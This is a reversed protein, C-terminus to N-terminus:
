PLNVVTIGAGGLRVDEDAFSQIGPTTSLYQRIAQRLAGTGTGHLIRVRHSSFRIADDIFYTVAQLAEDARMGRVDIEQKFDLRRQRAQDTAQSTILFPSDAGTQPKQLTPTLRSVKVRTKLMGFSVVAEKGDIDLVKGPVNQGQLKVYDGVKIEATPKPSQAQQKKPKPAKHLLTHEHTPGDITQKLQSQLQTRLEKTQEKDAQARRIDHITREIARNTGEVIRRAEEKADALIERRHQRLAEADAEYGALASEIKKEKQRIQMRKNEWYRRDRAIDLLYKDMNVYDSGAIEQAQAIVAEPLGIKRAIELAFSSGATGVVLKFMPEMRQRDYLMSGNVLGPTQEAMQKLNQYHTTIVGWMEKQAFCALIAQAIAGGILPETGTGFEDILCLARNNGRQMFRKMNLLHSSYTSLDNEISQNDGLDVLIEDFLGMHSNPHLPPLLGCQTMYQVLAVTKLTVSKGGANPGSVILLRREPTLHLDLPVIEAGRRRMQLLLLPHCAHYWELEPHPSLHPLKADIETAYLAKAHIFDLEAAIATSDLIDPIYPRLSSTLDTLIRATERREEIQLERLRNNTQVVEAPEIFITKGSASEDHVIGQVKRKHMPPVPLVMRGDRLSPQADPDLVGDAVARAMVRRMASQIAASAASLQRRIDALTSSANDLVNGYRDIVRRILTLLEPFQGIPEALRSLGPWVNTESPAFFRSIQGLADITDMVQLLAEATLFTGPIKVEQLLPTIDAVRSLPLDSSRPSTCIAAMEATQGLAASLLGFDTSFTLREQTLAAAPATLCLDAVRQRVQTFGIKHEM